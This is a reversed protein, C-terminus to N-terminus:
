SMAQEIRRRLVLNERKLREMADLDAGDSTAAAAEEFHVGAQAAQRWVVRAPRRLARAPIDLDFAEPLWAGNSVELRAGTESLNRVTCQFTSLKNPQRAVAALFTRRRLSRRHEEDNPMPEM